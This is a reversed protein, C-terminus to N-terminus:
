TTFSKVGNYDMVHAASIKFIHKKLWNSEYQISGFCEEVLLYVM